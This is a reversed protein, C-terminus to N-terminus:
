SFMLKTAQVGIDQIDARLECRRCDDGYMDEKSGECVDCDAVTIENNSDRICM